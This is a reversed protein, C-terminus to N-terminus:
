TPEGHIPQSRVDPVLISTGAADFRKGPNLRQLVKMDVHFGLEKTLAGGETSHV